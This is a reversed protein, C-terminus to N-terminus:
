RLERGICLATHIMVLSRLDVFAVGVWEAEKEVYAAFDEQEGASPFLMEEDPIVLSLPADLALTHISPTPAVHSTDRTDAAETMSRGTVGDNHPLPPPLPPAPPPTVEHHIPRLCAPANATPSVPLRPPPPPSSQASTITEDHSSSSPDNKHEQAPASFSLPTARRQVGGDAYAHLLAGVRKNSVEPVPSQEEEDGFCRHVADRLQWAFM